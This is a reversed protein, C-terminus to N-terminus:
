SHFHWTLVSRHRHMHLSQFSLIVYQYVRICSVSNLLSRLNYEFLSLYSRLLDQFVENLPKQQDEIM